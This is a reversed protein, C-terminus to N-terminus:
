PSQDYKYKIYESCRFLRIHTYETFSYNSPFKFLFLYHIIKKEDTVPINKFNLNIKDVTFNMSLRYVTHHTKVFKHM